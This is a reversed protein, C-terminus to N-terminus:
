TRGRLSVLPALLLEFFTQRELVIDASLQMGAQLPIRQGYAAISQAGLRVIVRYSPESLEIGPPSERPLFVVSSVGSVKGAHVGFRRYDFADYLLRVEQGVKIFGAARTPVFLHAQLLGDQPLIRLLPFGPNITSGAVAQLATIRGAVSATITMAMRGSLENERLELESRQMAFAAVHEEVDLPLREAALEIRSIQTATAARKQLMTALTQRSGFLNERRSILDMESIYGADAIRNIREYGTQQGALLQRQISIQDDIAQQETRLGRLEARLRKEDAERLRYQRTIQADIEHLQASISRLTEIDVSTGEASITEGIVTLLPAGTAVVMGEHVFLQGVVGHRPAHVTAIGKDPSLFGSVTAKRAYTGLALYCVGALVIAALLLTIISFSLPQTLIVDGFLRRQHEQLAEKRFLNSM